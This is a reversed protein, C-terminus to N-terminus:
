QLFKLELFDSFSIVSIFCLTVSKTITNDLFNESDPIKIASKKFAFKIFIFNNFFLKLDFFMFVIIFNILKIFKSFKGSNIKPFQYRIKLKNFLNDSISYLLFLLFM